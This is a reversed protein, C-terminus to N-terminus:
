SRGRALDGAPSVGASVSMGLAEVLAPREARRLFWTRIGRIVLPGVQGECEKMPRDITYSASVQIYFVSGGCSRRREYGQTSIHRREGESRFM